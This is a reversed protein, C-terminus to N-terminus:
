STGRRKEFAQRFAPFAKASVKYGARVGSDALRAERVVEWAIEGIFPPLEVTFFEHLVENLIKVLANLEPTTRGLFQNRYEKVLNALVERARDHVEPSTYEYSDLAKALEPEARSFVHYLAQEASRM